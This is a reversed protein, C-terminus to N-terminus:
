RKKRKKHIIKKKDEKVIEDLFKDSCYQKLIKTTKRNKPIGHNAKSFFKSEINNTDIEYETFIWDAFFSHVGYGTDESIMWINKYKIYSDLGFFRCFKIGDDDFIYYMPVVILNGIDVFLGIPIFFASIWEPLFMVGLVLSIFGLVELTKWVRNKVVTKGTQHCSDNKRIKIIEILGIIFHFLLIAIMLYRKYSM